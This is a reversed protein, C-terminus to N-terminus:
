GTSFLAAVFAVVAVVVAIAVVGLVTGVIGTVLGATAIGEGAYRRRDAVVQRRAWIGLGAAVPSCVVGVITVILFPTLALSVLGVIGLVLSTTALPHTPTGYGGLYQAPVQYSAPPPPVVTQEPSAAGWAPAEYAPYAPEAGSPPTLPPQESM